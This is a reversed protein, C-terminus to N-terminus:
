FTYRLVNQDLYHANCKLIKSSKLIYSVTKVFYKWNLMYSLKFNFKCCFIPFPFHWGVKQQRIMACFLVQYALSLLRHPDVQCTMQVFTDLIGLVGPRWAGSCQGSSALRCNRMRMTRNKEQYWTTSRLCFM